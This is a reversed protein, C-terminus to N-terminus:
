HESSAEGDSKTRSVGREESGPTERGGILRGGRGGVTHLAMSYPRSGKRGSTKRFLPLSVVPGQAFADAMGRGAGAVSGELVTDALGSPREQGSTSASLETTAVSQRLLGSPANGKSTRYKRWCPLENELHTVTNGRLRHRVREPFLRTLDRHTRSM